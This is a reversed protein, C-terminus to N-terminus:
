MNWLIIKTKYITGDTSRNMNYTRAVNVIKESSDLKKILVVKTEMSITQRKGASGSTDRAKRKRSDM